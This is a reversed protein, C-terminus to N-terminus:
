QEAGEMQNDAREAGDVDKAWWRFEQAMRRLFADGVRGAFDRCIKRSAACAAAMPAYGDRAADDALWRFAGRIADRLDAPPSPYRELVELIKAAHRRSLRQTEATM